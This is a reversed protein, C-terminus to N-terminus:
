LANGFMPKLKRFIRYGFALALLSGAGFVLWALPHEFRGFYLVDQYCWVMYSFPNFYLFLRFEPPVMSPLYVAPMMYINIICLLQIFERIDRLFVSTASLTLSIGIMAILQITALPVIMLYTWFIAGQVIFNYILIFLCGLGLIIMSSLASRIPLVEVPFVIQKVLSVNSSISSTGRGMSQQFTMWPVLGSLVYSTYNLPLDASGGVKARFIMDFVFAYVALLFLPHGWAWFRGLMQGAHPEYLERRALVVILRRHRRIDSFVNILACIHGRFDIISVM